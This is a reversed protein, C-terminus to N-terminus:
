RLIRGIQTEPKVLSVLPFTLLLPYHIERFQKKAAVLQEGTIVKNTRVILLAETM